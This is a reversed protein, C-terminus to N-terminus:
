RTLFGLEGLWRLFEAKEKKSAAEWNLKLLFLSQPEPTFPKTKAQIQENYLDQRTKYPPPATTSPLPPPPPSPDHDNLPPSSRAKPLPTDVRHVPYHKGDRGQRMVVERGVPTPDEGSQRPSVNHCRLPDESGQDQTSSATEALQPAASRFRGVSTYSVGCIEAIARDSRDAFERLAMEVAHRKDANTRRLGNTRNAGLSFKLADQRTGKHVVCDVMTAGQRQSAMIRHFGDALFYSSGDHFVTLPPFQDGAAMAEAYDAVTEDCIAARSQTGADTKIESIKISNM